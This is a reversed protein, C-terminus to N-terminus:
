PRIITCSASSPQWAFTGDLLTKLMQTVVSPPLNPLTLAQAASPQLVCARPSRPGWVQPDTPGFLALTIAGVAAALHAIGSDHSVVVCCRWLLAALERLPWAEVWPWDPMGRERLEQLNREQEAPGRIVVGDIGHQEAWQMVECWGELPWLKDPSGSGPHFAVVGQAPLGSARWFTEAVIEAEPEIEIHPQPKMAGLQLPALAQLLYDTVHVGAQPHPPWAIVQGAAHRRLQNTFVGDASPLYTLILDFSKLYASLTASVTAQPQFLRYVDLSELDTVRDAYRPHHALRIRSPHGLVEIWAQPFAQRLAGIVPLTVIFDGVAGGRIILARHITM